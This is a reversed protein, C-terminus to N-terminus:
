RIQNLLAISAQAEARNGENRFHKSSRRLLRRIRVPQVRGKQQQHALAIEARLRDVFGLWLRRGASRSENLFTRIAALAATLDGQRFYLNAREYKVLLTSNISVPGFYREAAKYLSLAKDFRGKARLLNAKNVRAQNYFFADAFMDEALLFLAKNAAKTGRQLYQDDCSVNFYMDHCFFAEEICRRAEILLSGARPTIRKLRGLWADAESYRRRWIYEYIIEIAAELVNESVQPNSTIEKEVLAALRDLVRESTVFKAMTGLFPRQKSIPLRFLKELIRNRKRRWIATRKSISSSAEFHAIGCHLDNRVKNDDILDLVRAYRNEHMLIDAGIRVRNVRPIKANRGKRKLYPTLRRDIHAVVKRTNADFYRLRPLTSIQRQRATRGSCSRATGIHNFWYIRAPNCKRIAPMIDLQDLGSYGIVLMIRRAILARLTRSRHKGLGRYVHNITYFISEAQDLSGHIKFLVRQVNAPLRETTRNITVGRTLCASEILLDFNTTVVHNSFALCTAAFQHNTNPCLSGLNLELRTLLGEPDHKSILHFLVEPRLESAYVDKGFDHLYDSQIKEVLQSAIPLSSPKEASVGAGCFLTVNGAAIADAIQGWEAARIRKPPPHTRSRAM